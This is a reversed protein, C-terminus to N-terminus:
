VKLKIFQIELGDEIPRRYQVDNNERLTKWILQGETNIEVSTIEEQTGVGNFFVMLITGSEIAELELRNYKKQTKKEFFTV